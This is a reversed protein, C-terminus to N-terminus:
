LRIGIEAYTKMAETTHLGYLIHEIIFYLIFILDWIETNSKNAKMKLQMKPMSDLQRCRSGKETQSKVQM